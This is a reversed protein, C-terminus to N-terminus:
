AEAGFKDGLLCNPTYTTLDVPNRLTRGLIQDPTLWDGFETPLPAAGSLDVRYVDMGRAQDGSYMHWVGDRTVFPAKVSWANMDDFQYWGIEKMGQGVNGLAVGVLASYDVVRVGGNYYAITFIQEEPHIDFVHATCGGLTKNTPGTQTAPLNWFGVKVPALELEDTIDYVHVGGNPCQGTGTAGAFEDEVILFEREGLIPDNVLVSEAQHEVNIAPDEITAIVSPNAPDETNIIVTQGIAASYARTGEDNFSIDHSESGLGPRVQLPLDAVRTPADFDTIDTVEILPLNATTFLDSNSNYLFDGSPHVTINHSGRDFPVFSVTKPAYPNTIDAIWSGYGRAAAFDAERNEMAWVACESEAMLSYGTDRTFVAYTRGEREFVQVDGQAVGCDYTSAHTPAEPNTIDTIVLGNYYTGSLSFTRQEGDVDMTVFEIDTGRNSDPNGQLDAFQVQAVHSVNASGQGEAKAAPAAAVLGAGMAAIALPTAALLHRRRM